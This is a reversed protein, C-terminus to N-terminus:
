ETANSTAEGAIKDDMSNCRGNTMLDAKGFGKGDITCTKGNVVGGQDTCCAKWTQNKMLSMVIPTAISVIVTILIIAVVTLNAEGAASKM